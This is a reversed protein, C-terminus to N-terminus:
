TAEATFDREDVLVETRCNDCMSKCSAANFPEGLFELQM